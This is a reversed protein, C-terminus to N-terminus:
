VCMVDCRVQVSSIITTIINICFVLLFKFM